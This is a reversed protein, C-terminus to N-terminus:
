TVYVYGHTVTIATPEEFLPKVKNLPQAIYTKLQGEYVGSSSFYEVRDNGTDVVWIRGNSGIAIGRPDNFQGNGTGAAATSLSFNM